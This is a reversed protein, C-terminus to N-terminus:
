FFVKEGINEIYPFLHERCYKATAQVMEAPTQPLLAPQLAYRMQGYKLLLADIEKLKEQDITGFYNELLKWWIRTIEAADVGLFFNTTEPSISTYHRHTMATCAFDFMPHGYSVDAMDILLPENNQIM